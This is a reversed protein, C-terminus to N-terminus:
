KQEVEVPLETSITEVKKGNNFCDPNRCYLDQDIYLKEGRIVYKSGGIRLLTKCKPCFQDM